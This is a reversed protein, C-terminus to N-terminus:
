QATFHSQCGVVVFRVVLCHLAHELVRGLGFLALILQVGLPGRHDLTRGCPAEDARAYRAQGSFRRQHQRTAPKNLSQFNKKKCLPLNM